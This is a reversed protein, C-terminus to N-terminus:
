TEIRLWPEDHRLRDAALAALVSRHGSVTGLGAFIVSRPRGLGGLVDHVSLKIEEALATDNTAIGTRDGVPRATAVFAVISRGKSHDRVLVARASEVFPHDEIVREVATLSILQGSISVLEDRRGHHIVEGVESFTVRDGTAYYQAGFRQQEHLIDESGQGEWVTVRGPLPITLVMEGTQGPRITSGNAALVRLGCDPMTNTAQRLYVIGGLQIQGWGDVIETGQPEFRKHMWEALEPEVAEGATIIRDLGTDPRSSSDSEWSRISRMITPATLMTTVHHRECIRWIRERDPMDLTGEYLVATDGHLLPGLLGHWPSVVWGTDGICWLRGASRAAVHFASLNLLLQGISHSTLLSPSSQTPVTVRCMITTADVAAGTRGASATASPAITTRHANILEHYWHDGVFWALDMGTRRVVITHEVSDISPLADDVRHKTPIVAGHRWAGDQTIVLSPRLQEFRQALAEVPLSVPVLTWQAGVGICALVAVATAPLWGMHIAVPDGASVGLSRLATSFADVEAALESYELRESEGPEGEWVIAPGSGAGLHRHLLNHLPDIRAGALWNGGADDPVFPAQPPSDWVLGDIIPSWQTNATAVVVPDFRSQEVM